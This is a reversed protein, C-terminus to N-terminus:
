ASAYCYGFNIATYFILIMSLITEFTKYGIVPIFISGLLAQVFSAIVIHEISDALMYSIVSTTLITNIAFRHIADYSPDYTVLDITIGLYVLLNIWNYTSILLKAFSM